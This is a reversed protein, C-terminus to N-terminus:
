PEQWITKDFVEQITIGLVNAMRWAVRVTPCRQRAIIYYLYRVSINCRAALERRTLGSENILSNLKM